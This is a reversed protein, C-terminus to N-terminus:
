SFFFLCSLKIILRYLSKNHGWVLAETDLYVYRSHPEEQFLTTLVFSCSHLLSSPQLTFSSCPGHSTIPSRSTIAFHFAISTSQASTSPPPSCSLPLFMFTLSLFSLRRCLPSPTNNSTTRIQSMLRCHHAIWSDEATLDQPAALLRTRYSTLHRDHASLPSSLLNSALHPHVTLCLLCSNSTSHM